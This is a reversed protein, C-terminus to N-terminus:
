GDAALEDLGEELDECGALLAKIEGSDLSLEEQDAQRVSDELARAVAELAAYGM